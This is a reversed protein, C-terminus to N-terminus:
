YSLITDIGVRIVEAIKKQYDASRLLNLDESNSIFGCEVILSPVSGCKTIFYDGGIAEFNSRGSYRKNVYENIVRQMIEGELKWKKTDDYFVQAGRRRSDSFKNIHISIVMDANSNNIIEKRRAMDEKKNKGLAAKGTRTMVVKYGNGLLENKLRMAIELNLDSELTGDQSVVGGDIGGHGADIVIVNSTFDNKATMKVTIPVLFCIMILLGILIYVFKARKILM